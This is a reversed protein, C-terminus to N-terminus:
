PAAAVMARVTCFDKDIAGMNIYWCEREPTTQGPLYCMASRGGQEDLASSGVVFERKFPYIAVRADPVPRDRYALWYLNNKWLQNKRDYTDVYPEFWVEADLYIVTKSELVNSSQRGYARPDSEVIYIHRMEWDEPCASAGGDTPCTVEPSHKAHVCALMNKEGLFRYDYQETKPNYGSYHDPDFTVTGTNSSLISEDLRRVRRAGAQWTWSDDGRSPDAYRYRIIGVGRQDEPSLVPYLAFM